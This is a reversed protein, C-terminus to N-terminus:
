NSGVTFHILLPQSPECVNLAPACSCASFSYQSYPVGPLRTYKSSVLWLASPPTSLRSGLEVSRGRGQTGDCGFGSDPDLAVGQKRM